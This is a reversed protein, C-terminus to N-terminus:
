PSFPIVQLPKRHKITSKMPPTYHVFKKGKIAVLMENHTINLPM